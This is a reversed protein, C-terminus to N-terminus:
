RFPDHLNGDLSKISPHEENSATQDALKRCLEMASFRDFTRSRSQEAHCSVLMKEEPGACVCEIKCTGLHACADFRRCPAITCRIRTRLGGDERFASCLM